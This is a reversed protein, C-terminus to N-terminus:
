REGIVEHRIIEQYMEPRRDRFFGWEKRVWDVMKLDVSCLIVGEQSGSPSGVMDGEPNVCFSGGYFEQREERGVRNVRFTFIGNAIANASISKEWISKSAVSAAATPAFVIQAGKLALIRAGEPFLNDWGIQIGIRAVGIDFVPFGLNGPRFYHSEEYLPMRPVHVKRYLGILEGDSGITAASNCFTDGNREFFPAIITAGTDRAAKKIATLTKGKIDESLDFNGDNIECPFWHTNFLEQLCIVRAGKKAAVGIMRLANEINREKDVSSNMQIGAIKLM